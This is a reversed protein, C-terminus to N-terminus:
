DLDIVDNNHLDMLKKKTEEEGLSKIVPLYNNLNIDIFGVTRNKKIFPNQKAKLCELIYNRNYLSTNYNQHSFNALKNVIFNVDGFYTLHWGCTIYSPFMINRIEHITHTELTELNVLKSSFWNINVYIHEIDYFYQRMMLNHCGNQVKMLMEGDPMEDLDGIIIKDTKELKM